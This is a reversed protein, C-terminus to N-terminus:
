RLYPSNIRRCRILVKLLKKMEMDLKPKVLINQLSEVKKINELDTFMNHIYSPKQEICM